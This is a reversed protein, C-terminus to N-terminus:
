KKAIKRISIIDVGKGKNKLTVENENPYLINNELTAMIDVMTKKAKVTVLFYNEEGGDVFYHSSMLDKKKDSYHSGLQEKNIDEKKDVNLVRYLTLEDPLNKVKELHYELEKEADSKDMGMDTTLLKLLRKKNVEESLIGILKM